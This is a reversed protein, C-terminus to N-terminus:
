PLPEGIAKMLPETNVVEWDAVLKGQRLEHTVAIPLIMTRGTVPEGALSVRHTGVGIMTLSVFDGEAVVRVPTNKWDPFLSRAASNGRKFADWTLAKFGESSVVYHRYEPALMTEAEAYDGRAVAAHFALVVERNSPVAGTTPTGGTACSSLLVTAVALAIKKRLM